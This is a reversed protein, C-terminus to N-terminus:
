KIDKLRENVLKELVSKNEKSTVIGTVIMGIASFGLGLYKGVKILDLNKM